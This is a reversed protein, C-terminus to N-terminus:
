IRGSPMRYGEGPVTMIYAPRRPNDELKQRLRSINVRLVSYDGEYVEGWVSRLLDDHTVIQGANRMLTILLGYEVPTLHLPNGRIRARRQPIDVELENVILKTEPQPTWEVRRLLAQVRAVLEEPSFPKDIYDDAGTELAVVKDNEKSYGSIVIIPLFSRDRVWRLVDLGDMDPLALDLLILDPTSATIFELATVGSEVFNASFGASELLNQMMDATNPDDEIVLIQRTADQTSVM